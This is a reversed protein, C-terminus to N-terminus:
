GWFAGTAIGGADEIPLKVAFGGGPRAVAFDVFEEAPFDALIQVDGCRTFRLLREACDHAAPM